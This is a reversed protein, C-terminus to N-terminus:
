AGVPLTRSVRRRTGVESVLARRQEVVEVAVRRVATVEHSAHRVSADRLLIPRHIALRELKVGRAESLSVADQRSRIAAEEEMAYAPLISRPQEGRKQASEDADRDLCDFRIVDVALYAWSLGLACRTVVAACRTVDDVLDDLLGLSPVAGGGRVEALRSGSRFIRVFVGCTRV